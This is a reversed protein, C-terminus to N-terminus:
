HSIENPKYKENALVKKIMYISKMVQRDACTLREKSHMINAIIRLTDEIQAAEFQYIVLEEM